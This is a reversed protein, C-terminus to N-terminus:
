RGASDEATADEPGSPAPEAFKARLRLMLGDPVADNRMSRMVIARLETKLAGRGRHLRSM